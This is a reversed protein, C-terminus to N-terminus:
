LIIQSNRVPGDLALAEKELQSYRSETESLARSAYAVAKWDITSHKQLLVAGLGYASADACVKLEASPDYLALVVPRTLELKIQEFATDQAHNWVWAKKTSLLERLPKSLDAIHPSFKGLQNVIGMFRRLESVTKPTEMKLIAATKNPDPAVGNRDIRHGLFYLSEQNFECKEKNRTM